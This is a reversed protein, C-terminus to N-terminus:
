PLERDTMMKKKKMGGKHKKNIKEVLEETEDNRVIEWLEDFEYRLNTHINEITGALHWVALEADELNTHPIGSAITRLVSELSSLRIIEDEIRSLENFYKMVLSGAATPSIKLEVGATKNQNNKVTLDPKDHSAGAVGGTSIKFKQLAKYANEEYEFGKQAM